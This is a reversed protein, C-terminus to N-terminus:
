FQVFYKFHIWSDKNNTFITTFLLTINIMIMLIHKEHQLLLIEHEPAQLSELSKTYRRLNYIKKIKVM